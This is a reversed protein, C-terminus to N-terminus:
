LCGMPTPVGLPAENFRAAKGRPGYVPNGRLELDFHREGVAGRATPDPFRFTSEDAAAERKVWKPSAEGVM